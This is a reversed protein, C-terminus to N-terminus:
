PTLCEPLRSDSIPPRATSYGATHSKPSVIRLLELLSRQVARPELGAPVYRAGLNRQRRCRVPLSAGTLFESVASDVFLDLRNDLNYEFCEESWHGAATRPKPGAGIAEPLLEVVFYCDALDEIPGPAQM